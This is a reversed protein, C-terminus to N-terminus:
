INWGVLQAQRRLNALNQQEANIRVDYFDRMEEADQVTDILFYGHRGSGIFYDGARSAALVTQQFGTETIHAGLGQLHAVITPLPVPHNRGVANALLYELTLRVADNPARRNIERQVAPLFSM